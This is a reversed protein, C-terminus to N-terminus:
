PSLILISVLVPSYRELTYPDSHMYSRLSILCHIIRLVTEGLSKGKRYEEYFGELYITPAIYSDKEKIVVGNLIVGNNKKM